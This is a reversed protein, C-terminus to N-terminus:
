TQVVEDKSDDRTSQWNASASEIKTSPGARHTFPKVRQSEIDKRNITIRSGIL